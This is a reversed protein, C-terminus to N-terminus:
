PRCHSIKIGLDMEKKLKCVKCEKDGCGDRKKIQLSQM